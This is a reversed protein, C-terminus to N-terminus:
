AASCRPAQDPLQHLAPGITKEADICTSAWGIQIIWLLGALLTNWPLAL